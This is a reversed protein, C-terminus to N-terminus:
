DLGGRAARNVMPATISRALASRDATTGRAARCRACRAFLRDGPWLLDASGVMSGGTASQTAYWRDFDVGPLIRIVDGLPTGPVMTSALRRLADDVTHYNARSVDDSFDQFDRLSRQFANV